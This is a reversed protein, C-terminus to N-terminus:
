GDGDLLAQLDASTALRFCDGEPVVYVFDGPALGMSQVVNPPLRVSGEVGLRGLSDAAPLGLTPAYRSLMEPIAPNVSTVLGERDVIFVADAGEALSVAHTAIWVQQTGGQNLAQRVGLRLGDFAREGVFAEPEELCVVEAGALAIAALTAFASQVGGGLHDLEIPSPADPSVWGMDRPHRPPNDAPELVGAGLAPFMAGFGAVATRARRRQALDMSSWASVFQARLSDPVPLAPSPVLATSLKGTVQATIRAWVQQFRELKVELEGLTWEFAADEPEEAYTHADQAASEPHTLAVAIEQGQKVVRFGIEAGGLLTGWLEVVGDNAQNFMGVDVGFREYFASAPWPSVLLERMPTRCLQGLLHIGGLVSSKGSANDGYLVTMAGLGELSVASSIARFGSIRVSVLRPM